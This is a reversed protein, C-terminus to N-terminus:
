KQSFHNCSSNLTCFSYGNEQTSRDTTGIFDAVAKSIAGDDLLALTLAEDGLCTPAEDFTYKTCQQCNRRHWTDFESGNSFPHYKVDDNTQM